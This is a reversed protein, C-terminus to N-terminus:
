SLRSEYKEHMKHKRRKALVYLGCFLGIGVADILVDRMCGNRSFFLQLVETFFAFVFLGAAALKIGCRQKWLLYTLVFFSFVHGIKQIFAEPVALEAVDMVLFQSLDPRPQFHFAVTQTLVMGSFSETCVSLLMFLTWGGLLLRNM